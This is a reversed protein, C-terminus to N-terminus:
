SYGVRVTVWVNETTRLKYPHLFYLPILDKISIAVYGASWECFNRDPAPSVGIRRHTVVPLSKLQASQQVMAYM